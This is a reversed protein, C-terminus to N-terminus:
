CDFLVLLYPVLFCVLVRGNRRRHSCVGTSDNALLDSHSRKVHDCFTYGVDDIASYLFYPHGKVAWCAFCIAKLIATVGNRTQDGQQVPVLVFFKWTWALSSNSFSHNASPNFIFHGIGAKSPRNPPTDM